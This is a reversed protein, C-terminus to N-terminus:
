PLVLESVQILGLYGPINFVRLFFIAIRLVESRVFLQLSFGIAKTIVLCIYHYIQSGTPIQETPFLGFCSTVHQRAASQLVFLKGAPLDSEIVELYGLFFVLQFCPELVTWSSFM